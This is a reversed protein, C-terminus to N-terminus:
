GSRTNGSAVTDRNRQALTFILLHKSQMFAGLLMVVMSCSVVAMIWWLSLAPLPSLTNLALTLGILAIVILFANRLITHLGVESGGTGFCGCRVHVGRSHVFWMWATFAALLLTTSIMIGPLIRPTGLVLAAALCLEVPPILVSIISVLTSSLHSLRLAARFQESNVLKGTAALILVLALGVQCALLLYNM